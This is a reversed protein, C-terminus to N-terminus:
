RNRSLPHFHLSAPKWINGSVKWVSYLVCLLVFFWSFLSKFKWLKLAVLATFHLHVKQFCSLVPADPSFSYPPGDLSPKRMSAITGDVHELLEQVDLDEAVISVPFRYPTGGSEGEPDVVLVRPVFSNTVFIRLKTKCVLM